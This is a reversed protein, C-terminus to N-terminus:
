PEGSVDEVLQGLMAFGHNGYTFRTGPEVEVRIGRRYYQALSPLPRGVKV